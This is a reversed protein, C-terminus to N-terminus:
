VILFSRVALVLEEIVLTSNGADLDSISWSKPLVDMLQWTMLSDGNENLLDVTVDLPTFTFSNLAALFWTFLASGVLMGRKLTLDSIRVKKPLQIHLMNSGGEDYDDMSVEAKLGSIQSFRMENDGPMGSFKVRFRFGVPPYYGGATPTDSAM